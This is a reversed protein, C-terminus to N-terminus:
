YRDCQCRTMLARVAAVYAPNPLRKGAAAAEIGGQGAQYGAIVVNLLCWSTVSRCKRPSLDHSDQFYRQGAWRTLWALYNAGVYANDRYDSPEYALGFRCDAWYEYEKLKAAQPSDADTQLASLSERDQFILPKIAPNTLVLGIM